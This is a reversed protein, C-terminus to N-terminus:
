RPWSPARWDFASVLGLPDAAPVVTEIAVEPLEESFFRARARDLGELVLSRLRPFGVFHDPSFTQVAPGVLQLEELEPLRRVLTPGDIGVLVRAPLRLRRLPGLEALRQLMGASSGDTLTLEDLATGTLWRLDVRGIVTLSRLRILRDCGRPTHNDLDLTLARLRPLEALPGLDVPGPTTVSGCLGLRELGSLRCLDDLRDPLCDRLELRELRVLGALSSSGRASPDALALSRLEVLESLVELDTSHGVRLALAQLGRARALPQLRDEHRLGLRRLNPLEALQELDASSRSWCELMEIASDALPGPDVYGPLSLSRLSQGASSNPLRCLAGTPGPDRDYTIRLGQAAVKALEPDIAELQDPGALRLGLLELRGPRRALEHLAADLEARAFSGLQLRRLRDASGHELLGTLASPSTLEAALVFGARTRLSVGPLGALDPQSERDRVVQAVRQIRRARVPDRTAAAALELALLEGRVDGRQMLADALVAANARADM